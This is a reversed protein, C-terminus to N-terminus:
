VDLANLIKKWGWCVLKGEATELQKESWSNGKMTLFIKLSKWKTWLFGTNYGPTFTHATGRHRWLVPLNKLLWYKCMQNRFERSRVSFSTSFCVSLCHVYLIVNHLAGTIITTKSVCCPMKHEKKLIIAYAVRNESSFIKLMFHTNQNERCIKDLIDWM